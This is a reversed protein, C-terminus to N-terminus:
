FCEDNDSYVPIKEESFSFFRDGGCAITMGSAKYNASYYVGGNGQFDDTVLIKDATIVQGSEGEQFLTEEM